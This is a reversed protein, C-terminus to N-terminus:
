EGRIIFNITQLPKNHAAIAFNTKQKRALGFRDRGLWGVLFSRRGSVFENQNRRKKKKQNKKIQEEGRLIYQIAMPIDRQWLYTARIPRPGHLKQSKTPAKPNLAIGDLVRTAM